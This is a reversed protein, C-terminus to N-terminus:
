FKETKKRPSFGPISHGGGRVSWAFVPNAGEGESGSKGCIVV